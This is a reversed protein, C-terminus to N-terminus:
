RFLRQGTCSRRLSRQCRYSGYNRFRRDAVCRSFRGARNTSVGPRRRVITLSAVGRKCCSYADPVVRMPEPRALPEPEAADINRVVVLGQAVAIGIDEQV